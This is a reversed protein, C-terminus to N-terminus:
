GSGGPCKPCRSCSRDGRRGPSRRAPREAREISAVAILAEISEPLFFARIPESLGIAEVAQLLPEHAGIVAAPDGLSLELLGLGSLAWLSSTRWGTREALGFAQKAAGRAADEEGRQAYVITAFASALTRLSDSELLDASALAEAAFRAAGHLDGRWCELWALHAGLLPLDSERGREIARRRLTGYREAASDLRGSYLDLDAAIFSPRRHVPLRSDRDELALAAEIRDDIGRGLLFDVIAAVALAEGLLASSGLTRAQDLARRAPAEMGAFDGLSAHVYALEMEIRVRLLPDECKEGLAEELLGLAEDVSDEQQCVTALLHLARSRVEGARPEAVIERLLRQAKELDGAEFHHAAADVSRRRLDNADDPPSLRLAAEALEAAAGPAGRSYASAAARDLLEATDSDPAHAALALHRAREEIDTVREGLRRHLERRKAATMSGYVAGAYIPHSFEVLRQDGITILGAEEAPGLARHDLLELKPESLASAELLAERTSDPLESIRQWVLEGIEAPVPLRRGPSDEMGERGLADAIELAYFPNGGAAENLKELTSPALALGLRSKVIRRLAGADLPGVRLRELRGGPAVRGLGLPASRGDEDRCALLMGITTDGLRRMAFELVRASPRDLWQVDDVAVLVPSTRALVVLASVFGAAVARFDPPASDASSRLLAVDLAIRQPEPLEPLVAAALPEMLDALSAFSLKTESEAPRCSLVPFSSSEAARVGAQLLTTKGVGAHGELVLANPGITAV